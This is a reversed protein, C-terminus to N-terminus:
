TSKIIDHAPFRHVSVRKCNLAIATGRLDAGALDQEDGGRFQWVEILNESRHLSSAYERHGVGIARRGRPYDDPEDFPIVSNSQTDIQLGGLRAIQYDARLQQSRRLYYSCPTLAMDACAGGIRRVSMLTIRSVQAATNLM